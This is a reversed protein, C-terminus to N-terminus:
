NRSMGVSAVGHLSPPCNTREDWVDHTFTVVENQDDDDPLAHISVRRWPTPGEGSSAFEWGVSPVWTIGKDELMGDIYVVGDVHVRVWWGDATPQETLRLWYSALEGENITLVPTSVEVQGPWTFIPADLQAYAVGGSVMVAVFSGGIAARKLHRSLIDRKRPGEKM